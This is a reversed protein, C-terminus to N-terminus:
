AAKRQRASLLRHITEWRSECALLWTKSPERLTLTYFGRVRAGPVIFYRLSKATAAVFVWVDPHLRTRGRSHLNWRHGHYRYVYQKGHVSVRWAFASRKAARVAITGDDALLDFRTAAAPSGGRRGGARVHLGRANLIKRVQEVSHDHLQVRTM